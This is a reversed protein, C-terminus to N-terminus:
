YEVYPMREKTDVAGRRFMILVKRFPALALNLQFEPLEEVIQVIQVM